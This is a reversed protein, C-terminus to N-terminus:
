LAQEPSAPRPPLTSNTGSFEEFKEWSVEQVDGKPLNRYYGLGENIYTDRDLTAQKEAAADSSAIEKLPFRWYIKDLHLNCTKTVHERLTMEIIHSLRFRKMPESEILATYTAPDKGLRACAVSVEVGSRHFYDRIAANLQSLKRQQRRSRLLFGGVCVLIILINAVSLLLISLASFSLGAFPMTLDSISVPVLILAASFFYKKESRGDYKQICGASIVTYQM